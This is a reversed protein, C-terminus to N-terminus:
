RRHWRNFPTLSPTEFLSGQETEEESSTGQQAENDRRALLTLAYDEIIQPINKGNILSNHINYLQRKSVMFENYCYADYIIRAVPINERQAAIYILECHM